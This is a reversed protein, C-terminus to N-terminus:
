CIASLVMLSLYFKEVINLSFVPMGARIFICNWACIGPGRLGSEVGPIGYNIM